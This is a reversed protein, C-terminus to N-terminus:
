ALTIPPSNGTYFQLSQKIESFIQAAFDIELVVQLIPAIYTISNWQLYSGQFVIDLFRIEADSQHQHQKKEGLNYPHIHTVFEGTSTVEKHMFVVGSIIIAFMWIVLFSAINQRYTNITHM